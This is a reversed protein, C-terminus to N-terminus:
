LTVMDDMGADSEGSKDHEMKKQKKKKQIMAENERWEKLQKVLIKKLALKLAGGGGDGITWGQRWRRQGQGRVM